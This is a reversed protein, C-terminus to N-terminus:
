MTPYPLTTYPITLECAAAGGAHTACIGRQEGLHTVHAALRAVMGRGALGGAPGVAPGALVSTDNLVLKCEMFLQHTYKTWM